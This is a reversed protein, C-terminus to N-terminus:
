ETIWGLSLMASQVDGARINKGMITAISVTERILAEYNAKIEAEDGTISPMIENLSFKLVLEPGVIAGNTVIPVVFSQWKDRPAQNLQTLTQAHSETAFIGWFEDNSISARYREIDAENFLATNSEIASIATPDNRSIGGPNAYTKTVSNLGWSAPAQLENVIDQDAM